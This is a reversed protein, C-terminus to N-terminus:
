PSALDNGSCTSLETNRLPPCASYKSLGPLRLTVNLPYTSLFVSQYGPDNFQRSPIAPVTIAPNRCQELPFTPLHIVLSYFSDPLSFTQLYRLLLRFSSPQPEIVTGTYSKAGFVLVVDPAIVEDHSPRRVAFGKPYQYDQVLVSPLAQRHQHGSM